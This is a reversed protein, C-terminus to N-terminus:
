FMTIRSESFLRFLRSFAVLCLPQGSELSTLWADVFCEYNSPIVQEPRLAGQLTRPSYVQPSLKRLILFLIFFAAAYGTVPGLTSLVASASSNQLALASGGTDELASTNM